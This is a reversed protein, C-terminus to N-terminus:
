KTKQLIKSAAAMAQEHRGALRGYKKVTAVHHQWPRGEKKAKGIQDLADSRVMRAGIAKDSHYEGKVRATMVSNAEDIIVEEKMTKKKSAVHDEVFKHIDDRSMKNWKANAKPVEIIVSREGNRKNSDHEYKADEKDDADFCHGWKCGEGKGRSFVSHYKGKMVGEDLPTEFVTASRGVLSNREIQAQKAIYKVYENM